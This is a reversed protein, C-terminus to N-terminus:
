YSKGECFGLIIGLRSMTEITSIVETEELKLEQLIYDLPCLNQSDILFQKWKTPFVEEHLAYNWYYILHIVENDQIIQLSPNLHLAVKELPPALTSDVECGINFALWQAWERSASIYHEWTFKKKIFEPFNLALESLTWSSSPYERIYSRIVEDPKTLMALTEPFDEELSEELRSWYANQYVKFHHGPKFDTPTDENLLSKLFREQFQRLSKSM